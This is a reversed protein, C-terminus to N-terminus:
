LDFTYISNKRNKNFVFKTFTNFYKFIFSFLKLWKWFSQISSFFITLFRFFNWVYESNERYFDFNERFLHFMESFNWLKGCFKGSFELYCFFLSQAKLSFNGIKSIKLLEFLKELKGSIKWFSLSTM